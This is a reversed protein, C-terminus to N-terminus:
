APRIAFVIRERRSLSAFLALLQKWPFYKKNLLQMGRVAEEGSIIEASAEVWEGLVKGSM